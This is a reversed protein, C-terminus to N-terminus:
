DRRTVLERPYPAEPIAVGLFRCLAPWDHDKMVLLDQPRDRFYRRVADNHRRYRKLFTTPEFWSSGYAAEHIENTFPYVAADEKM